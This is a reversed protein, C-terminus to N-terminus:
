SSRRPGEERELEGQRDMPPSILVKRGPLWNKTDVVMYRIVWDDMESIFDDVHGIEGDTAAIHYGSVEKTSRLHPDGMETQAQGALKGKPPSVPPPVPFTGGLPWYFPWGYHTHLTTEQQRSFPKETDIDPSNKVQERTLNVPFKMSEWDPHGLAVPSILVKRGPLWYHTDVVLYRVIWKEDDFFFDHVKGIDGDRAHMIDGILSKISRLM